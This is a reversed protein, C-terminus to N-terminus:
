KKYYNEIDEESILTLIGDVTVVSTDNMISNVKLVFNDFDLLSNLTINSFDTGQHTMTCSDNLNQEGEASFIGYCTFRGGVSLNYAIQTADPNIDIIPRLTTNSDITTSILELKNTEENLKYLVTVEFDIREEGYVYEFEYVKAQTYIAKHEAFDVLILSYSVLFIFGVFLVIYMGTTKLKPRDIMIMFGYLALLLSYPFLLIGSAILVVVQLKYSLTHLVYYLYISLGLTVIGLGFMLFIIYDKFILNTQIEALTPSAFYILYLEYVFLIVTIGFLISVFKINTLLKPQLQEKRM